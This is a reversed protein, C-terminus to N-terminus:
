RDVEESPLTLGAHMAEQRRNMRREEAQLEQQRMRIKEEVLKKEEAQEISKEEQTKAGRYEM